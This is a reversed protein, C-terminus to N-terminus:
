VERRAPVASPALSQIMYNDLVALAANAVVEVVDAASVLPDRALARVENPAFCGTRAIVRALRVIAAERADTATGARALTVDEWRLGAERAVNTQAWICYECRSEEAVVLAIQSRVRAPFRGEDITRALKARAEMAAPSRQLAPLFGPIFPFDAPM